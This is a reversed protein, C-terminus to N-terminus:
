RRRLRGLKLGLLPIGLGVLVLAFLMRQWGSVIPIEAAATVGSVYISQSVIGTLGGSTVIGLTVLYDGSEAYNHVANYTEELATGDGYDWVSLEISQDTDTLNTFQVQGAVIELAFFDATLHGSFPSPLTATSEVTITRTDATTHSWPLASRVRSTSRRRRAARLATASNRKQVGPCRRPFKSVPPTVFATESWSNTLVRQALKSAM